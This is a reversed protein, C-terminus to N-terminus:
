RTPFKKEIRAITDTLSAARKPEMIGMIAAAKKSKMKMLIKAATYEDAASLRSSADEASMTEYTKVMHDLNEAKIQEIRKLAGEMQGLLKTYHEIKAEVDKRLIELRKEQERLTEEKEKLERNKKEVVAIIDDQAVVAQCSMHLLGATLIAVLAAFAGRRRSFRQVAGRGADNSDSKDTRM